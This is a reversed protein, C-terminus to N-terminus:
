KGVVSPTTRDAAPVRYLERGSADAVLVDFSRLTESKKLERGLRQAYIKASALDLYDTGDSDAFFDSGNAVHFFYLPM